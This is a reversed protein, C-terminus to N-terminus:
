RTSLLSTRGDTSEGMRLLILVMNIRTELPSAEAIEISRSFAEKVLGAGMRSFM